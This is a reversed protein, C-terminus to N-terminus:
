QKQKQGRKIARVKEESTVAYVQGDYTVNGTLSTDPESLEKIVGKPNLILVSTLAEDMTSKAGAYTAQSNDFTIEEKKGARYYYALDESTGSKMLLHYDRDYLKFKVGYSGEKTDKDFGRHITEYGTIKFDKLEEEPVKLGEAVLSKLIVESLKAICDNMAKKDGSIYATQLAIELKEVSTEERECISNIYDDVLIDEANATDAESLYKVTDTLTSEKINKGCGAVPAMLLIIAASTFLKRLGLNVNSLKIM